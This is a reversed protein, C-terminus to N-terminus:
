KNGMRQMLLRNDAERIFQELTIVGNLYRDILEALGATSDSLQAGYAATRVFMRPALEERYRRIGEQTISYRGIKAAEELVAEEATLLDTLEQRRTDEKASSLEQRLSDMYAQESELWSRYYSNEVPETKDAYLVYAQEDTMAALECRLLELAADLSGTNPDVALVTLEVATWFDTDPTLTMPLFVASSDASGAFDGVLLAGSQLLSEYYIEREWDNQKLRDTHLGEVAKMLQRFEPTDFTLARGEAAREDIYMDLAMGFLTQRLEGGADLLVFDDQVSATEDNYRTIFECLSVLDRPLQEETLGMREMVGRSAYWGYSAAYVPIATLRGEADTVADRFCPYMRAAAKALEADVSLDACLGADRLATYPSHGADLVLVDMAEGGTLAQVLSTEDAYYASSDYVPVGPNRQSFLARGEDPWGGYVTVSVDASFDSSVSRVSVSEWGPIIFSDGIAQAPLGSVNVDTSFGYQRTTGDALSLGLIRGNATYLAADLTPSYAINEMAYDVEAEGIPQATDTEPDYLCITPRSFSGDGGFAAQLDHLVTLASGGRLACLKSVTTLQSARVRGTSLDCILLRNVLRDDESWDNLSWLLSGGCVLAGTCEAPYAGGDAGIHLFPKTDELTVIDTFGIGDEGVTMAFVAGSATNLSMLREGDTFLMSCEHAADFFGGECLEAEEMGERWDYLEQGDATRTLIYLTDGVACASVVNLYWGDEEDVGSRLLVRDEGVASAAGLCVLVALLISMFRKM